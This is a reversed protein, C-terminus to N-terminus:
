KEYLITIFGLMLFSLSQLSFLTPSMILVNNIKKGILLMITIGVLFKSLALNVYKCLYLCIQVEQTKKMNNSGDLISNRTLFSVVSVNLKLYASSVEEHSHDRDQSNFQLM